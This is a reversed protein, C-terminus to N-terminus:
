SRTLASVVTVYAASYADRDTLARLTALLDSSGREVSRAASLDAAIVNAVVRAAM